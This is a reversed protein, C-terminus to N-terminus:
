FFQVCSSVSCVFNSLKSFICYYMSKYFTFKLLSFIEGVLVAVSFHSIPVFHFQGIEHDITQQLTYGETWQCHLVSIIKNKLVYCQPSVGCTKEEEGLEQLGHKEAFISWLAGCCLFMFTRVENWSLILEM